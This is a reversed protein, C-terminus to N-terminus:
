TGIAPRESETVTVRNWTATSLALLPACLNSGVPTTGLEKIHQKPQHSMPKQPISLVSLGHVPVQVGGGGWGGFFSLHRKKLLGPESSLLHTFTLTAM